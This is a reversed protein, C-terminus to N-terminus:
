VNVPQYYILNYFGGVYQNDVVGHVYPQLFFFNTPFGANPQGAPIEPIPTYIWIQNQQAM